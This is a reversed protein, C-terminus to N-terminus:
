KAKEYNQLIIKLFLTEKNTRYNKKSYFESSVVRSDKFKKETEYLLKVLSEYAGELEIQNSYILFEKGSFIHVDEISVINITPDTKSIFDLIKQQVHVPNLSRGGILKDLTKIDNKLAYLNNFSNNTNALKQRVHNLEKKAALTHKFTKKYSALFLLVFGILVLFFKRKYTLNKFM